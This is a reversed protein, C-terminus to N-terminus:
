FKLDESEFFETYKGYIRTKYARFCSYLSLINVTYEPKKFIDQFDQSKYIKYAM